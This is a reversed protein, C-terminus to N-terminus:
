ILTWRPSAYTGFMGRLSANYCSIIWLTKRKSVFSVPHLKMKYDMDFDGTRPGSGINIALWMFIKCSLPAWSKWIAVHAQFRIGGEWLMKYASGATYEGVENWAWIAKDENAPM